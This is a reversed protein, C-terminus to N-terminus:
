YFIKKFITLYLLKILILVRFMLAVGLCTFCCFTFTCRQSHLAILICSNTCNYMCVYMCMYICKQRKVRQVTSSYIYKIKSTTAYCVSFVCVCEVCVPKCFIILTTQLYAQQFFSLPNLGLHYTYM